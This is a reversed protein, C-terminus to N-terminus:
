MRRMRVYRRLEPWSSAIAVAGLVAGAGIALNRKGPHMLSSMSRSHGRHSRFLGTRRRM